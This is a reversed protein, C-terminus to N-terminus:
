GSDHPTTTKAEERYSRSSSPASSLRANRVGITPQVVAPSIVGLPYLSDDSVPNESALSQMLM